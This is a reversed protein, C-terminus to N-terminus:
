YKKYKYGIHMLKKEAIWKSFDLIRLVIWAYENSIFGLKEKRNKELGWFEEKNQILKEKAIREKYIRWNM